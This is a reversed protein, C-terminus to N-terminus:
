RKGLEKLVDRVKRVVKTAGAESPDVLPDDDKEKHRKELQPKDDQVVADLSVPLVLESVAEGAVPGADAMAVRTGPPRTGRHQNHQAAAGAIHGRSTAPATDTTIASGGGFAILVLAASAAAAKEILAPLQPSTVVLQSTSTAHDSRNTISRLSLLPALAWGQAEDWARRLSNRARHLLAKVQPASMALHGAIERHSLGEVARMQLARAHLPSIEQIAVDLRPHDGVVVDEPGEQPEPLDDGVPLAVLHSRSTARLHDVCVNTAIRALWAGLQFQGNFRPLAQYARLFTEQTAEEADQSNNLLRTCVRAVRGSHRRYMEDYAGPVGSKFALVLDRDSHDRANLGPAM